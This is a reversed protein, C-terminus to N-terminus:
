ASCVIEEGQNSLPQASGAVQSYERAPYDNCRSVIQLCMNLFDVKSLDGKARNVAWALFQVNDEVYGEGPVIQDLSVVYLDNTETSMKIGSIACRGEQKNWLNLLFDDSLTCSSRGNAYTRLKRLRQM